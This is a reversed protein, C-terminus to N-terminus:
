QLGVPLCYTCMWLRLAMDPHCHIGPPHPSGEFGGSGSCWHSIRTASYCTSCRDCTILPLSSPCPLPTSLSERREESNLFYATDPGSPVCFYALVSIAMTIIGEFVFINRWAQGIGRIPGASIFGSALLGGFGGALSAASVLIGIRFVLRISIFAVNDKM